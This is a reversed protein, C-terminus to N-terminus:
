RESKRGAAESQLNRLSRLRLTLTDARQRLEKMKNGYEESKRIVAMLEEYNLKGQRHLEKLRDLEAQHHKQQELFNEMDATLKDQERSLEEQQYADM